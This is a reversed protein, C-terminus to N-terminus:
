FSSAAVVGLLLKTTLFISRVISKGTPDKFVSYAQIEVLGDVAKEGRGEGM